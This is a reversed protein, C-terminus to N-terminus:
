NYRVSVQDAPIRWKIEDGVFIAVWPICDMRGNEDYAMIKTCGNSGVTFGPDSEQPYFVAAIPREDQSLVTNGKPLDTMTPGQTTTQKHIVSLM